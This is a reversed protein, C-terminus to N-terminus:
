NTLYPKLKVDLFVKFQEQGYRDVFEFSDKVDYGLPINFYSIDYKTTLKISGKVGPADNDFFCLIYKYRQKLDAMIKAPFEINESNPAIINIPYSYKFKMELLVAVDKLSKTIILIQGTPDIIDLGQIDTYKSNSIWKRKPDKEFPRYFKFRNTKPFYYQYIPNNDYEEWIKKWRSEKSIWVTSVPYINLLDLTSQTVEGRKWYQLDFESWQRICSNFNTDRTDEKSLVLEEKPRIEKVTRNLVPLRGGLLGLNFDENIVSLAFDIDREKGHIKCVFQIVDGSDEAFDKFYLRDGKPYINFSPNNEARFPSFYTQKLKFQYGLYRAYIEDERLRSLVNKINLIRDARILM